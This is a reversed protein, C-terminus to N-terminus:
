NQSAGLGGPQGTKQGCEPCVGSVNGVLNYGCHVCWGHRRRRWRRLPAHAGTSVAVALLFGCVLPHPLAACRIVGSAFVCEFSYLLGFIHRNGLPYEPGPWRTAGLWSWGEVDDGPLGDFPLNVRVAGARIWGDVSSTYLSLQPTVSWVVSARPRLGRPVFPDEYSFAWFIAVLLATLTAVTALAVRIM